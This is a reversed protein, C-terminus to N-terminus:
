SHRSIVRKIEEWRDEYEEKLEKLARMKPEDKQYVSPYLGEEKRIEMFIKYPHRPYKEEFEEEFRPRFEEKWREIEEVTERDLVKRESELVRSKGIDWLSAMM